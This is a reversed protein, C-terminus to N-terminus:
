PRGGPERDRRVSARERGRPGYSGRTARLVKLFVDSNEYVGTFQWAGPGSASLPVDSATHGAFTHGLSATDGPCQGPAPCPTAGNEITGHVLFGPVAVGRSSTNDSAGGAADRAPNAVSVAPAGAAIAAEHQLRNSIWNEYHDPGAAWGFLLKRSPDPDIPYGRADAQYNPFFNLVQGPVFRFVAAYDRVAKGVREPAYRENGVGIIGLGGAEHDATVIVLTDNAQAGDTNTRRAFDLAVQVARDFEIVDWVTREADVAHARKDISAGEVMLYFGRPSHATLSGLALRTLDELMPTDRYAANAPRVLEDSYRGAGVKDFAVPLHTQHFLGLLKEPPRAAASLRAVDSGSTLLAYGARAFEESLRRADSREGGAGKPMFHKAGGGLLVTVGNTLREDFFRDAIGTGAFRDSTHVANAAPTSDTVDANTVIGVNFGRGRTRALLEGLYEIRPNDFADATNDPFVGEQNNSNKQGTTYAAMGPSSDTIASNLSATMVLGTVDLTDMALRGAAKGNHLGRSVIRAATRHALGMGDGLLLIVNRARPGGAPTQWPEVTLRAVATAGDATRAMIVMSGAATASFDRLLFNTTNRNAVGARLTSAVTEGTGTGGAGREGGVGAALINLRTVDKGNILVTLGRPPEAGDATAEVRVDLRQGAALVGGDPPMIRIATAASAPLGIVCLFLAALVGRVIMATM